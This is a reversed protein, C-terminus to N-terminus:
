RHNKCIAPPKVDARRLSKALERHRRSNELDGLLSYAKSLLLHGRIREEVYRTHPSELAKECIDVATRPKKRQLAIEGRNILARTNDPYRELIKGLVAEAGPLDRAAIKGEALTILATYTDPGRKLASALEGHFRATEERGLSRHAAELVEHAHAQEFAFYAPVRPLTEECLTLAADADGRTLALEAYGIAIRTNVPYRQALADLKARAEDTRGLRLYLEALSIAGQFSDGVRTFCEEAQPFEGSEVLAWGLLGMLDTDDKKFQLAQRYFQSAERWKGLKAYLRGLDKCRRYNPGFEEIADLLNKVGQELDKLKEVLLFHIRQYSSEKIASGKPIGQYLKVARAYMGNDRCIKEVKEYPVIDEPHAQILQQYLEIAKEINGSEHYTKALHNQLASDGPHLTLGKELIAVASAYQKDQRMLGALQKFNSVQQPRETILQHLKKKEPTDINKRSTKHKM